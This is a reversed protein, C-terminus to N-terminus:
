LLVEMDLIFVVMRIWSRSGRTTKYEVSNAALAGAPREPVDSQHLQGDERVILYRYGRNGHIQIQRKGHIFRAKLETRVVIM